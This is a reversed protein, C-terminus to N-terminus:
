EGSQPTDAGTPGDAPQLTFVHRRKDKSTKVQKVPPCNKWDFAVRGPPIDEERAFGEADLTGKRRSGDALTLTYETGEMPNGADDYVIAEVWDIFKLLGSEGNLGSKRGFVDVVFFYEPPRYSRGCSQMEEDTPIKGTDGRYVFEWDAEVKADKVRTPFKTIFDHAGDQDYEYIRFTVVTDDDLGTTNASLHLVDGPRVEKQGWALGTVKFPPMLYLPISKKELGHKPLKATFTLRDRASQPVTFPKAFSDGFIKGSMRSLPKGSKDEVTIEIASGSGVLHTEVLLKVADGAMAVRQGWIAYVIESPLTEQHKKNTQKKYELAM